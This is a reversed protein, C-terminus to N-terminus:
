LAVVNEFMAATDVEVKLEGNAISDTATKIAEQTGEAVATENLDSLYVEGSLYDGALAAEPAKDDVIAKIAAMYLRTYNYVPTCLCADAYLKAGDEGTANNYTESGFGIYFMKADAAAKAIAEDEFDSALVVCGDKILKDSAAAADTGFVVKVEAAENAAKVGMAFANLYAVDNKDAAAFGVKAVELETAKMGAVIGTLYAAVSDDVNYGYVNKGDDEAGYVLFNVDAYDEQAALKKVVEIYADETAIVLNCEKNLLGIIAEEVAAADDPNVGEAVYDFRESGIGYGLNIVDNVAAMAYGTNGTVTDATEKLVLGIKINDNTIDTDTEETMSCSAFTMMMVVAIVLALIKKFQKM